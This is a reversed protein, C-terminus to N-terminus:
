KEFSSKEPLIAEFAEQLQVSLLEFDVSYEPDNICIMDHGQTRIANCLANITTDDVCSVVNDTNYPAFQGSAVQWWLAVWQNIDDASRFRHSSTRQMLAPEAAWLAEFTQKRYAAPAHLNKFGTFYNPFLKELTQTRVNDQWRYAPNVYKKAYKAVQERKSFHQNIVGLDNVMAHQWIGLEGVLEVPVEGGYTCPLGDRFFSKEQMSRLLFTDDNFYVFHEALDPIRHLNMELAHSSFTPLCGEPMFDEHRVYHLKPHDLNLFAPVHGCTVFHVKRVWPTFQEVARFWYPMLGWDRFRNVSNRDDTMELQYKAKQAQWEPDNGDVWPVVFDIDMNKTM